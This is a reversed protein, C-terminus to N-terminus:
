SFSIFDDFQHFLVLASTKRRKLGSKLWIAQYNDINFQQKRLGKLKHLHVGHISPPSVGKRASPIHAMDKCWVRLPFSTWHFRPQLCRLFRLNCRNSVRPGYEWGNFRTQAAYWGNLSRLTMDESVSLEITVNWNSILRSQMWGLLPVIVWM